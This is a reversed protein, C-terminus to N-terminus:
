RSVAAARRNKVRANAYPGAGTSTLVSLAPGVQPYQVVEDRVGQVHGLLERVLPDFSIV